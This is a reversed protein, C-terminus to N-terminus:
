AGVTRVRARLFAARISCESYCLQAGAGLTPHAQVAPEGCETPARSSDARSPWHTYAADSAGPRAAPHLRQAITFEAFSFNEADLLLNRFGPSVRVNTQACWSPM